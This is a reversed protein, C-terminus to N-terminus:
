SSGVTRLPTRVVVGISVVLLVTLVILFCLLVDSGVAAYSM